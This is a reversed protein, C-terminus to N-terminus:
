TLRTGIIYTLLIGFKITIWKCNRWVIFTSKKKCCKKIYLKALVQLFKDNYIYLHNPHHYIPIITVSLAMFPSQHILILLYEIAMWLTNKSKRHSEALIDLETKVRNQNLVTRFNFFHLKKCLKIENLVFWFKNGWKHMCTCKFQTLNQLNDICDFTSPLFM